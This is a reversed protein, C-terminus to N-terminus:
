HRGSVSAERQSRGSVPASSPHNSRPRRLQAVSANNTSRRKRRSTSSGPLALGRELPGLGVMVERFLLELQLGVGFQSTLEMGQERPDLQAELAIRSAGFAIGEARLGPSRTPSGEAAAAPRALSQVTFAVLVRPSKSRLSGGIVLLCTSFLMARAFAPEQARSDRLREQSAGGSGAPSGARSTEGIM